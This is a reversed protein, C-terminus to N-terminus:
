RWDLQFENTYPDDFWAPPYFEWPLEKEYGISAALEIALDRMRVRAYKMKTIISDELTDCAQQFWDVTEDYAALLQEWLETQEPTMSLRMAKVDAIFETSLNIVHMTYFGTDAYFDTHARSVYRLPEVEVGYVTKLLEARYDEDTFTFNWGMATRYGGQMTYSTIMPGGSKLMLPALSLFGIAQTGTMSTFVGNKPDALANLVSMAAKSDSILKHIIATMMERQRRTRGLDTGDVTANKRARVYDMIGIGDLHQFGQTYQIGSDGGYTMDVDYDIGGLADGLTFMAGMDVAFYCDIKIGGLLREVSAQTRALGGLLTDSCNVASNLKYIGRVGPVITVTDRPISIIDVRNQTLNFAVVMVADTHCDTIRDKFGSGWYGEQGFDIGLLLVNLITDPYSRYEVNFDPFILPNQKEVAAAATLSGALVCIGLVLSIV